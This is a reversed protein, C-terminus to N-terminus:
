RYGESVMHIQSPSPRIPSPSHVVIIIHVPPPDSFPLLQTALATAVCTFTISTADLYAPEGSPRDSWQILGAEWGTMPKARFGAEGVGVPPSGGQLIGVCPACERRFEWRPTVRGQPETHRDRQHSRLSRSSGDHFVRVLPLPGAEGNVEEMQTVIEEIVEVVM